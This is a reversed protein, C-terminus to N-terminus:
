GSLAARVAHRSPVDLKTLVASVHHEVTRQSLTLQEAIAANSLGEALLDAVEAERRTLGRPHTRTTARPGRPLSWGQARALSRARDAAGDAGLRDFRAAATVLGDETGSRAHAVAAAFLCGVSQWEEAAREWERLAESRAPGVLSGSEELAREDPLWPALLGRTWSTPSSALVPWAEDLVVDRARDDGSIWAVECAAAAYPGVRQAEGTTFARDHAEQLPERYDDRGARARARALVILPLIRSVMPTRPHRLVVEAETAAALHDGRDLLLQAQWGRMYLAWADLDRDQCYALGAALFAGARLHDYMAVGQSALNTYARAAHEHLDAAKSRALSDGLRQWGVDEDGGDIEAVGLNNLAHVRVEEAPIGERGEVLELARAGWTRTGEVDFALMCLQARNSAAMAEPVGGVGRLTACAAAAYDQAAQNQGLFWSLRSLWRECDGIQETVHLGTWVELAALRTDRAEDIRGTVYLEYALRGLLEARDRDPDRSGHRLARQYQEAAERHSGLVAAREAAALAHTHTAEPAGAGEAHDAMRAPDAHHAELWALIRRHDARRRLPPVEDLVTLRALEHRFTLVDGSLLLMGQGLAEDLPAVLDPAVDEVLGVETRPGALAVLDMAERTPEPLRDVRSLVAERVSRPLAGDGGAIVETVYFPNGGTTRHLEDADVLAEVGAEAVLTRVGDPSLPNLDIRRVGAAGAVDGFVLRLPHSRSTEEARYTVLVLARLRHVRRALHRLLDLTADDAWHADEVVLLYPTGPRGLADALRQFVEDRAAGDPWVDSPLAPLMERLPGLPPPTRSGDCAGRAVRFGPDADAAVRDVFTSKGVGAEGGILVLRGNGAAAAALYDGASGLAPTRELLVM